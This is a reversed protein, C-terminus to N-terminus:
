RGEKNQERLEQTVLLNEISDLKEFILILAKLIKSACQAMISIGWVLSRGENRPSESVMTYFQRQSGPNNPDQPFGTYTIGTVPKSQHDVAEAFGSLEHLRENEYNEM